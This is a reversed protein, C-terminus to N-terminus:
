AQQAVTRREVRVLEGSIYMPVLRRPRVCMHPGSEEVVDDYYLGAPHDPDNVGDRKPIGRQRGMFAAM